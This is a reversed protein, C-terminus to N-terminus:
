YMNLTGANSKYVSHQRQNYKIIAANTKQVQRQSKSYKKSFMDNHEVIKQAKVNHFGDDSFKYDQEKLVIESKKCSFFMSILLLFVIQIKM